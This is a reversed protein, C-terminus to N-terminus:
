RRLRRGPRGDVRFGPCPPWAGSSSSPRLATRILACRLSTCAMLLAVSMGPLLDLYSRDRVEPVQSTPGCTAATDARTQDEAGGLERVQLPVIEGRELAETDARDVVEAGGIFALGIRVDQGRAGLVDHEVDQGSGLVGCRRRDELRRRVRLGRALNEAAALGDRQELVAVALDRADGAGQGPVPLEERRDRLGLVPPTTGSCSRSPGCRSPPRM